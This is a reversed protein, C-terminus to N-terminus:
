GGFLGRFLGSVADGATVLFLVSMGILGLIVLLMIVAVKVNSNKSTEPTEHWGQALIHGTLSGSNELPASVPMTMDVAPHGGTRGYVTGQGRQQPVAPGQATRPPPPPAVAARGGGFV